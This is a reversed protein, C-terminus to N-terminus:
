GKTTPAQLAVNGLGSGQALPSVQQITTSSGLKGLLAAAGLALGAGLVATLVLQITWFRNRPM